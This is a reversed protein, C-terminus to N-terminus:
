GPWEDEFVSRGKGIARLDDATWWHEGSCGLPMGSFLEKAELDTIGLLVRALGYVSEASHHNSPTLPMPAVEAWDLLTTKGDFTTNTTPHWGSLAAAWGAVCATTACGRVEVLSLDTEVNSGQSMPPGTGDPLLFKGYTRQDYLHPYFDIVDAIEFFLDSNREEVTSVPKAEPKPPVAEPKPPVAELVEELVETPHYQRLYQKALDPSIEALARIFGGDAPM